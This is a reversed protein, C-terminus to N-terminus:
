SFRVGKRRRSLSGGMKDHEAQMNMHLRHLNYAMNKAPMFGTQDPHILTLIVTNLRIALIKIDLQLLSIPRYLEPFELNKGPKPILVIYAEGMSSPLSGHEFIFFLEHLRPILTEKYTTYFELPLGDSGPAKSPNLLSIAKTIEDVTIPAELLENQSHTLTPVEIDALFSMIEETSNNTALSYLFTFFSRFEDVVDDPDTLLEGDATRRSVVTPPPKHDLHTLHHALLRGAWEGCEYHRQKTYYIKQEAKEFLLNVVRTQLKLQDATSTSPSDTFHKEADALAQEAQRLVPSSTKRYRAIRHSLVM